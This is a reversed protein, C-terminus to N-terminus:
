IKIRFFNELSSGACVNKFITEGDRIDSAMLFRNQLSNQLIIILTIAPIVILFKVIKMQNIEGM